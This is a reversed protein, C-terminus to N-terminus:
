VVCMALLSDAVPKPVQIRVAPKAWGDEVCSAFGSHDYYDYCRNGSVYTEAERKTKGYGHGGNGMDECFWITVMKM